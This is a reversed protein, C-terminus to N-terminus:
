ADTQCDKSLNPIKVVLIRIGNVVSRIEAIRYTQSINYACCYVPYNNNYNKKYFLKKRFLQGIDSRQGEDRNM